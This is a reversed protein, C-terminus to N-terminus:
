INKNKKNIAKKYIKELSEVHFNICFELLAKKRANCGLKNILNTDDLLKNIIKTIQETNNPEILYGTKGHEILEPIGGIKTGIIPRGISMAEIAVTPLNEINVSPVIILTSKKYYKQIDKHKSKGIFTIYRRLNLNYTLKKLHREENGKGVIYLHTKPHTNVIKPIAKILYDVGKENDLRGVYLLNYKSTIASYNFVHIGNYLHITPKINNSIAINKIFKSPAVFLDINKFLFFFLQKNLYNYIQAILKLSTNGYKQEPNDFKSKLFTHPQFHEYSHLTMIVPYNKLGILISPSIRKYINNLHIVDPEFERIIKKLAFYAKINFIQEIYFKIANFKPIYKNKWDVFENNTFNESSLIKITHGRSKLSQAINKVYTEAGGVDSIYDNILLIKM